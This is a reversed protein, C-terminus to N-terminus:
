AGSGARRSSRSPRQSRKRPMLGLEGGCTCCVYLTYPRHTEDNDAWRLVERLGADELQWEESAWGADPRDGLQQWFYVRYHPQDVEWRTDRPDVPRGHM